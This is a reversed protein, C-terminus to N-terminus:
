DAVMPLARRPAVRPAPAEESLAVATEDLEALVSHKFARVVRVGVERGVLRAARADQVHVIENGFSRGSFTPVDGAQARKSPGEVLVTLEAGVLGSLHRQTLAEALAFLRALRASKEEEPVDNALKQAPTFPRESYKFGFVGLFGIKEVLSLTAAFDEETEGPFGVIIDTSLTVPKRASAMAARLAGVRALLEERTYRRKMRKLVRSSGSQVPLHVHRCLTPLTAHAEILSPTLHRPHPSTYRLRATPAAAAIAHLLAAFASEDPDDSAGPAVALTESPDQYSNVTQGLLIIERTGRAALARVEALIEGSPRYREPGRTTPVICFTCRENCGKMTTVYTSVPAEGVVAAGYSSLFQPDDLDFVTRVKPLGGAALDHLLLPLERINDPGVILDAGLGRSLLREGEQQAVCGAVVLLRGPKARREANLKGLESRLKQEAKERVSCTNLIVVDADAEPAECLGASTLVELMRDSDHVNMQCGFTTIHFSKM